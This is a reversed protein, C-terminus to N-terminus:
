GNHRGGKIAAWEWNRPETDKYPIIGIAEYKKATFLCKALLLMEPNNALDINDPDYYIDGEEFPVSRLEQTLKRTRENDSHIQCNMKRTKEHISVIACKPVFRREIRRELEALHEPNEPNIPIVDNMDTEWIIAIGNIVVCNLEPYYDYENTHVCEYPSYDFPPNFYQDFLDKPLQKILSLYTKNTTM